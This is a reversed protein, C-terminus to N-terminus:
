IGCVWNLVHKVMSELADLGRKHGMVRPLFAEKGLTRQRGYDCCYTPSPLTNWFRRRVAKKM